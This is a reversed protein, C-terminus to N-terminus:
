ARIPETWLCSILFAMAADEDEIEMRLGATALPLFDPFSEALRGMRVRDKGTTILAAAGAHQASAILRAIDRDTYPYHDPFPLRAALQLGASELGEFFQAPRGIGCFAAVPGDIEPIDLRRRVRWVPGEWGWARLDSELGPAEGDAPIVVITARRIASRPERLNGAPLLHDAQWDHRDVLLIDVNRYLQRHQFGDDLLHVALSTTSDMEALLGAEYRRRGVYVPVGAERAILMPEDGYDEAVGGPDVHGVLDSRRAYGRSLVDIRRDRRTLARALAITLPTKGAGGASLSGVSIVPFSLRRKREFGTFLLLERLALAGRYLPTLPLLLRRAPYVQSM